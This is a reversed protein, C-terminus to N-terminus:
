GIRRLVQFTPVAPFSQRCIPMRRGAMECQVQAIIVDGTKQGKQFVGCSGVRIFTEAGMHALEEIGIAVAPGGMGTGCVTM